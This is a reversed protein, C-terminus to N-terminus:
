IEFKEIRKGTRSIEAVVRIMGEMPTNKIKSKLLDNVQFVGATDNMLIKIAIPKEKTGKEIEVKQIAMASVSHISISGIIYPIRGRGKTMDLADSIRMVSAEITLPKIEKEHSYISHLVESTVIVRQSDKYIKKLIRELIPMAIMESFIHHDHRHIVMGLDHMISSLFVVVEADDYGMGYDKEISMKIGFERLIRLIRFANEAVIKMHTPGHDNIHLRDIATINQCKWYTSLEEDSNVIGIIKRLKENGQSISIDFM